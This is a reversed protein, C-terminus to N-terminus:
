VGGVHAFWGGATGLLLLIGAIWPWRDRVAESHELKTQLSYRQLNAHELDARQAAIAGELKVLLGKAETVEEKAQRTDGTAHALADRCDRVTNAQTLIQGRLDATMGQYMAINKAQGDMCEGRADSVADLAALDDRYVNVRLVTPNDALIQKITKRPQATM